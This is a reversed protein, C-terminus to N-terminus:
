IFYPSSAILHELNFITKREYKLDDLFQLTTMTTMSIIVIM